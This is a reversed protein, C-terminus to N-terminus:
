EIVKLGGMYPQLVDPIHIRGEADQYNEMVAILTRGVALGSGNLTHVLEPKKTEPNRWRAQMRRAQFSEMNSCSSVERYRNQGPLWVELDYTKAASFGLDGGCLNLVRYPLKLLQLVKEAHNTLAELAEYSKEPHVVQVLEVKEFQHQRFMGKTDKGYSGSEKRFCATQCTFKMPLQDHSLIEDRVLNTLSVEATPILWLDSDQIGFQDEVFKPFQGTGYLTESKVLYPSYVEDYGHDTTHLNVMFQALARHLQALQRRLVVFRAGSLKVSAEFDMMNDFRKALEDHEKPEFDFTPIEGWRRVEENDEETQGKPVSQHPINPIHSLLDNLEQQLASLAQEKEALKDGLSAVEQLLPEIPEGSAKAKGIAKSRSNRENQIEQTEVQLTKRKKELQEYTEVQLEFGKPALLEAVAAANDRLLKIDLM